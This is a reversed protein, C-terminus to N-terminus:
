LEMRKLDAVLFSEEEELIKYFIDKGADGVAKLPGSYLTRMKEQTTTIARITDYNEQQIVQEKLLNDLIPRINSVRKILDCRHKDVFHKGQKHPTSQYEDKRITCTWIAQKGNIHALKLAFNRDPNEIFVEYFNPTRSEYRLKLEEPCIEAGDLDATLIFHDRMKLSKEPHPKRIVKYGYSLERKDMAQQLGPDRPILYVHLTLFATNTKYILVNCNVKVPIGAKM